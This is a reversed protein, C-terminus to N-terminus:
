KKLIIKLLNKKTKIKKGDYKWKEGYNDEWYCVGRGTWERSDKRNERGCLWMGISLSLCKGLTIKTTWFGGGLLFGNM